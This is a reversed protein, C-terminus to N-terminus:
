PRALEDLLSRAETMDAGDFGETFRQYVPLLAARAQEPRGQRVRLSALATATRLEWALAGQESALDRSRHLYKEAEAFLSGDLSMLITAKIRLAEPMMFLDGNREGVAIAEDIAKDAERPRGALAMGDAIAIMLSTTQLEYRLGHLRELATRLQAIGADPQGRRILIEGAMGHALTHYPMLSHREAHELLSAVCREVDDLNRNWLFVRM